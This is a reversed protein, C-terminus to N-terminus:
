VSFVLQFNTDKNQMKQLGAYFFVFALLFFCVFLFVVRNLKFKALSDKVYLM